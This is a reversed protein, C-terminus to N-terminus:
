PQAKLAALYATKQEATMTAPDVALLQDRTMKSFEGADAAPKNLPGSAERMNSVARERAARKQALVEPGDGPQPFYQKNANEFEAPSISAGSERRLQANIFDRQAQDFQQYEASMAYNGGPLNGVNRELFGPGKWGKADLQDFIGNSASMRNAYGHSLTQENNPTQVGPRANTVGPTAATGTAAPSAASGAALGGGPLVRPTIFDYSGNPGTVGKGALWQAGQERTILGARIMENVGQIEAANGAFAGGEGKEQGPLPATGIPKGDKDVLVGYGAKGGQVYQGNKDDRLFGVAGAPYQPATDTPGIPRDSPQQGPSNGPKATGPHDFGTQDNPGATQLGVTKRVYDMTEKPVKAPDGGDKLWQDVNGEGWNYAGVALRYDGGYKKLLSQMMKGMGDISSKPDNVDVKYQQATGPMFQGVGRAGKPSTMKGGPATETLLMNGLVTADVGYVAAADAIHPAYIAPVEGEVTKGPGTAITPRQPTPGPGPQPPPAATRLSDGPAAQGPLPAVSFNSPGQTFTKAQPDYVNNGVAFPKEPTPYLQKIKAEAFEKPFASAIMNNQETPTLGPRGGSWNIGTAPDAGGFLTSLTTGQTKELELKRQAEQMQLDLLRNRQQGGQIQQIAGFIGPLDLYQISNSV